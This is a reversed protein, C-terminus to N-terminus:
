RAALVKDLYQIAQDSKLQSLWFIAKKREERPLSQNEALGILARASRDAPLQSLAFVMQERVHKDSERALGARVASETEAAKSQALWFWAQARVEGERDGSAARILFPAASKAHSQTLAFATHKRIKADADDFLYPLALDFGEAGRVQTLWFIADKRNKIEGDSKAIAAVTDRATIGQHAAIAGILSSSLHSRAGTRLQGALWKVSDDTSVGTLNRIASEAKVPCAAALTRLKGLKGAEFRAYVRLSGAKDERDRSNFGVNPGDLQCTSVSSDGKWGDFCCWAPVEPAAPVEWSAWGETPPAPPGAHVAPAITLALAAAVTAAASIAQRHALRM